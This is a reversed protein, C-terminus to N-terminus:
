LFDAKMGEVPEGPSSSRMFVTLAARITKGDSALKPQQYGAAISSIMQIIVLTNQLPPFTGYRIVPIRLM